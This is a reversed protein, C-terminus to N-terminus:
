VDSDKNVYETVDNLLDEMPDSLQKKARANGIRARSVPDLGLISGWKRCQDEEQQMEKILPNIYGRVIIISTGPTKEQAKRYEDYVAILRSFSQCYHGLANVDLSTFIGADKSLRIIKRWEKKGVEDLWTPPRLRGPAIKPTNEKRAEIVAKTRHGTREDLTEPLKVLRM